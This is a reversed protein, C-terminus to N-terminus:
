EEQLGHVTSKEERAMAAIERIETFVWELQEESPQMRLLTLVLRLLEIDAPKWTKKRRESEV